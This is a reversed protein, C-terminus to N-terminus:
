YQERLAEVDFEVALEIQAPEDAAPNGQLSLTSQYSGVFRAREGEIENVTLEWQEPEDQNAYHPMVRPTHFYSASAPAVLQGNMMTFSISVTGETAYDDGAHAQLIVTYMGRGLETFSASSAGRQKLVHWRKEEGDIWGEVSDAMLLPSSALLAAVLCVRAAAPLRTKSYLTSM